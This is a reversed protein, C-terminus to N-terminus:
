MELIDRVLKASEQVCQEFGGVKGKVGWVSLQMKNDNFEYHIWIGSPHAPLSHAEMAGSELCDTVVLKPRSEKYIESTFFDPVEEDEKIAWELSLLHRDLGHGQTSRMLNNTHTRAANFFLNRLEEKPINTDSAADCFQRVAPWLTHGIEVRGKLFHALGVTEHALPSFGFYKRCALQIAVQAGSIPSIKCNRFLDFNIDQIELGIFDLPATREKLGSQAELIKEELEPNTEFVHSDLPAVEELPESTTHGNIAEQVFVILRRMGHGDIMSHEGITASEGNDCISFQLTKDAWRNFGTLIFQRGRDRGTEPTAEDLYIVFQAAEITHLLQANNESISSLTERNAAWSDREDTTLVGVWSEPECPSDIISQFQSKLIALSVGLEIKFARGRRFAVLYNNGPYRVLVDEGKRPQRVSNFLREYQNTELRQGKYILPAIAGEELQRCFKHSAFALVAAREAASHVNTNYHTGAFNLQPVLPVRQILYHQRDYTTEQWNAIKPDNALMALRAQLKRGKGGQVQFEEVLKKAENYESDSLVSSVATLWLELSADLEPLPQKPLSTEDEGNPQQAHEV